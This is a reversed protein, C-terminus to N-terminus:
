RAQALFAGVARSLDGAKRKARAETPKKMLAALDKEVQQVSRVASEADATTDVGAIGATRHAQAFQTQASEFREQLRDVAAEDESKSSPLLKVEGTTFYNFAVLAAGVVLLAILIGKM